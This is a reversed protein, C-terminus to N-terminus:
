SDQRPANVVRPGPQSAPPVRVVLEDQVLRAQLAGTDYGAPVQRRLVFDRPAGMPLLPTGAAVAQGVVRVSTVDWTITLEAADFGPVSVRVVFDDGEPGASVAPPDHVLKGGASQVDACLSTWFARDTTTKTM